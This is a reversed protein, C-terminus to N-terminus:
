IMRLIKLPGLLAVVHAVGSSVYCVRNQPKEFFPILTIEKIEWGLSSSGCQNDANNGRAYLQGYALPTLKMMLYRFWKKCHSIFPRRM